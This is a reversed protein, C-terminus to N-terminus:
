KRAESEEELVETLANRLAAAAEATDFFEISRRGDRQYTAIRIVDKGIRYPDRSVAHLDGHSGDVVRVVVGDPMDMMVREYQRRRTEKTENSM